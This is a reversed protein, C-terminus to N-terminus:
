FNIQNFPTSINNQSKFIIYHMLYMYICPNNLIILFKFKGVSNQGCKTTLTIPLWVTYIPLLIQNSSNREERYSVHTWGTKYLTVQTM